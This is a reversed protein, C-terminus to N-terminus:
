GVTTQLLPQMEKSYTKHRSAPKGHTTHAVTPLSHIGCHLDQKKSLFALLTTIAASSIGMINLIFDPFKHSHHKFNLTQNLRLSTLSPVDLILGYYSVGKLWLSELM